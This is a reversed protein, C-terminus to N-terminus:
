ALTIVFKYKRDSVSNSGISYTAPKITISFVLQDGTELPIREFNPDTTSTELDVNSNFRDQMSSNTKLTNLVIAAPNNDTKDNEYNSPTLANRIDHLMKDDQGNGWDSTIDSILEAENSLLDAANERAFITNAM